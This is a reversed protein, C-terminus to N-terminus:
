LGAIRNPSSVSVKRVAHYTIQLPKSKAVLRYDVKSELPNTEFEIHLLKRGKSPSQEFSQILIPGTLNLTEQDELPGDNGIM